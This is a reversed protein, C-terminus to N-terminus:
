IALWRGFLMDDETLLSALRLSRPDLDSTPGVIRASDGGAVLPSITVCWEDVVGAEVLAANLTPGGESVVVSAGHSRLTALVATVDVTEDGAAHVDAVDAFRRGDRDAVPQTTFVLPRGSAFAPSTVELDLRASVIALRPPDGARGASIRADRVSASIRPPRYAEARVTGAGVLIVDAVARVARFVAKDAPGGLDGSRGALATAGDLAAIMGVTVWPRDARPPRDQGLYSRVPDVDGPTPLLQRVSARYRAGRCRPGPEPALM